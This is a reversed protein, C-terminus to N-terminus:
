VQRSGGSWSGLEAWSVRRGTTLLNTVISVFESARTQVTHRDVYLQRGNAAIRDIEHPSRLYDRATREFTAACVPLFNDGGRLGLYEAGSPPDCMLVAGCATAEYLKIFPLRYMGTCTAFIRSEGIVRAYREGTLTADPDVFKYGPHSRHFYTIGDASSFVDHMRRRLPYFDPRKAGLLTVDYRKPGAPVTFVSPDVSRPWPVFIVADQVRRSFFTDFIDRACFPPCYTSFVIDFGNGLLIDDWDRQTCHWFDDIWGIKPCTAHRLDQPFVALHSPLDFRRVISASLPKGLLHQEYSYCVIADPMRSACTEALIEGLINTHYRYGPGYFISEPLRAAIARQERYLTSDVWGDVNIALFLIKLSSM